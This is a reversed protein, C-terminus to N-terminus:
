PRFGGSYRFCFTKTPNKPMVTNKWTKITYNQQITGKRTGGFGTSTNSIVDYTGDVNITDIVIGVHGAKTANFRKTIIVDGPLAKDLSYQTWLSTNSIFFDYLATTGVNGPFTAIPWTSPVPSQKQTISYGTARYFILSVAAACGMNGSDTDNPPPAADYIDSTVANLNCKASKVINGIWKTIGGRYDNGPHSYMTSIGCATPASAPPPTGPTVIIIHPSPPSVNDDENGAAICFSELKTNWGNENITHQLNKILFNAVNPYNSPLYSSDIFFKSGIKMGSLGDMTLSLNFPIFGTKPNFTEISPTATKIGAAKDKEYLYEGLYNKMNVYLKCYKNFSDKNQEIEANYYYLGELNDLYTKLTKGFTWLNTFATNYKAEALELPTLTTTLSPTPYSNIEKRFRDTLGNNLKSLATNNEGVVNGNATASVSIMTSFAPSLETNFTFDKIFGAKINAKARQSYGTLEFTAYEQSGLVKKLNPLPNKDIIKVFTNEEDIFANLDSWGGFAVNVQGLLDNLFDILNLGKDKDNTQSLAKLVARCNLYINMIQGHQSDNPSEFPEGFPFYNRNPPIDTLAPFNVIRNVMCVNPDYSMLQSPAHMLTKEIDYYEFKLLPSKLDNNAFYMVGEEIFRLLCGLRIFVFESYGEEPKILSNIAPQIFDATGEAFGDKGSPNPFRQTPSNSNLYWTTQFNTNERPTKAQINYIADGPWSTGRAIEYFAFIFGAIESTNKYYNLVQYTNQYELDYKKENVPAIDDPSIRNVKFSEIIDGMSVLDVTIDYSGDKQFSWHFNSVKAVMGDYNGCSKKRKDQVKKIVGYYDSSNFWDDHENGYINDIVKNSTNDIFLSNGWELLVTFGLRLYLIDIIDFQTKNFAKIKVNAIRISGMNKYKIDAGIIGMMPAYGGFDTGGIGYADLSTPEGKIKNGTIGYAAIDKYRITGDPLTEANYSTVGNKLMYKRALADGTLGLGILGINNLKKLDTITTSSLLQCFATNNRLKLNNADRQENSFGAGQFEQRIGIQKIIETPFGEGFINGM